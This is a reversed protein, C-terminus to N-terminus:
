SRTAPRIGPDPLGTGAPKRRDARAAGAVLDAYNVLRSMQVETAWEQLWEGGSPRTHSTALLANRLANLLGADDGPEVVHHGGVRELMWSTESTREAIALIPIGLALYEYLKNPVQDPQGQAFLLLLGAGRLEDLCERHPLWDVFEVQEEVGLRRAIEPVSLHLYTKGDGIFRVRLRDAGHARQTRLASVAQLLPRPDRGLYLTGAHIVVLDSSARRPSSLGVAPTDIGNRVVIVREPPRTTRLRLRRATAETVAVSAAEAM